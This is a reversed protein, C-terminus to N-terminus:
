QSVVSRIWAAHCVATLVTVGVLSILTWRDSFSRTLAKARWVVALGAVMLAGGVGYHYLFTRTAEIENSM